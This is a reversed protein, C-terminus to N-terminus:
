TASRARRSRVFSVALLIAGILVLVVTGLFLMASWVMDGEYVEPHIEVKVRPNGSALSTGDSLVEVDLVYRRGSHGQFHGLERSITDNAWAGSRYDDSSGSAVVQGSSTLVWSAKVVSPQGPCDQIATSTTAMSMGLLCNLTDFPIKKQVEVEITYPGDRNIKFEGTRLHGVSMPIPMYVPRNNRTYLWLTWCGYLVFSLFILVVGASKM